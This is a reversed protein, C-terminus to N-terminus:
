RVLSLVVGFLLLIILFVTFATPLTNFLGRIM